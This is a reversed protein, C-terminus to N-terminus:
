EVMTVVLLSLTMSMYLWISAAEHLILTFYVTILKVGFWVLSNFWLLSDVLGLELLSSWIMFLNVFVVFLALLSVRLLLDLLNSWISKKSIMFFANKIDLQHFRGIRTAAMSLFLRVFAIQWCLLFRQWLRNWFDSHLWQRGLLGQPSWYCWWSWSECYLDM